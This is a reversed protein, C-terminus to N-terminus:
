ARAEFAQKPLPLFATQDERLLDAKTGVKGGTREARDAACRERLERNLSEMAGVEPVPVPFNRHAFGILRKVYRKEIPRRM